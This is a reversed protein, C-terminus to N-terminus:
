KAEPLRKLADAIRERGEWAKTMYGFSEDALLDMGARVAALVEANRELQDALQRLMDRYPVNDVHEAIELVDQPSIRQEPAGKDSDVKPYTEDSKDIKPRQPTVPTRAIPEDFVHRPDFPDAPDSPRKCWQDSNECGGSKRCESFRCTRAEDNPM